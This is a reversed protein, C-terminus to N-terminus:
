LFRNIKNDLARSHCMWLLPCYSFQSRFFANMLIRKKSVTMYPNVRALQHIKRSAKKCLDELHANLRLKNYIKIGLLKYSRVYQVKLLQM